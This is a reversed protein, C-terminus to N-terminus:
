HRDRRAGLEPRTIALASLRPEFANSLHLWMRKQALDPSGAEIAAVIDLHEGLARVIRDQYYPKVVQLLRGGQVRLKAYVSMLQRNRSAHFIEDHLAWGAIQMEEIDPSRFRQLGRLWEACATLAVTMGHTAALFAAMGEISMRLEHIERMDDFTMVRVFVGQSPQITLLGDGALARIARRVSSTGLGFVAALTKACVREGAGL